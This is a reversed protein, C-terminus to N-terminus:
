ECYVCTFTNHMTDHISSLLLTNYAAALVSVQLISCAYLLSQVNDTSMSIKATYAFQLLDVFITEDIDHITVTKKHCESMDSTFMSRGVFLMYRNYSQSHIDMAASLCYYPLGALM